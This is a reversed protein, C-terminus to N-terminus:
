ITASAAPVQLALLPYGPLDVRRLLVVISGSGLPGAAVAFVQYNAGGFARTGVGLHVLAVTAGGHVLVVRLTVGHRSQETVAAMGGSVGAFGDSAYPPSDADSKGTLLTRMTPAGTADDRCELGGSVVECVAGATLAFTDLQGGLETWRPRGDAGLALVTSEQDSPDLVQPWPHPRPLRGTFQQGAPPSGIQGVLLLVGGDRAAATLILQQSADAGVSPSRWTWLTKGTAPDLRQVVVRPGCDWSAGALPGDAALGLGENDMGLSPPWQCAAPRPRRWAVAGTAIVRATLTGSRDGTLLYMGSVAVPPDQYTGRVPDSWLERGTALDLATYASVAWFVGAPAQGSTRGSEVIVANPAPVLAIIRSLGAPMTATWAPTGTEASIARVRAGDAGLLTGGDLTADAYPAGQWLPRVGGGAVAPLPASAGPAPAPPQAAQRSVQAPASVLTAPPRGPKCGAATVTVVLLTAGAASKWWSSTM